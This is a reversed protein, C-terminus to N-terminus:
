WGFRATEAVASVQQGHGLTDGGFAYIAGDGGLAGALNGRQTLMSTGPAQTWTNTAPDYGNVTGAGNLGFAYLKGNPAAVVSLTYSGVNIMPAEGQWTNTTPDYAEVTQDVPGTGPAYGAFGGVIYIKGNAALAGGARERATPMAARTSWTDNTANYAYVSNLYNGGGSYGGFVYITGDAARVAQAGSINTPFSARPSWTNATPDYSEVINSAHAAQPDSADGGQPDGGIALITGNSETVAAVGERPTLMPARATWSNTATSYLQVQGTVTPTQINTLGGVVLVDGGLTTTAGPRSVGTPMAAVKAWGNLKHPTQPHGFPHYVLGVGIVTCVAV